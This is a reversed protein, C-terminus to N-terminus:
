ILDREQKGIGEEQAIFSADNTLPTTLAIATMDEDTLKVIALKEARDDYSEKKKMSIHMDMSKGGDKAIVNTKLRKRLQPPLLNLDMESYMRKKAMTQKGFLILQDKTRDHKLGGTHQSLMQKHGTFESSGKRNNGMAKRAKRDEYCNSTYRSQSDTFKITDQSQIASRLIGHLQELMRSNSPMLKFVASLAEFLVPFKSQMHHLPKNMPQHSTSDPIKQIDQMKSLKRLDDFLCERHLGMFRFYAIALNENERLKNLWTVEATTVMGPDRGNRIEFEEKTIINADFIVKNVARTFDPARRRDFLILYILPVSFWAKLMKLIEKYGANIGALIQKTRLTKEVPDDKWTDEIYDFTNKFTTRPDKKARTWWPQVFDYLFIHLERMRFGPTPSMEGACSYWRMTTEFYCGLYTEFTLGLIVSPMRLMLAVEHAIRQHDSSHTTNRVRLAWEKLPVINVLQYAANRENTLWRQQRERMTKMRAPELGLDRLVEEFIKQYTVSGRKFLDHMSQLCQLPHFQRHNGREMPGFAENMCHSMALNDIHYLDRCEMLLRKVDNYVLRGTLLDPETAHQYNDDDLWSMVKEFTLKRESAATNENDTVHGGFHAAIDLPISTKMTDLNLNSLGDADKAMPESTTLVKFRPNEDVKSYSMILGHRDRNHHKSGDSVIYFYRIFGHKTPTTIYPRFAEMDRHFDIMDLRYINRIITQTSILEEKELPRGCLYTSFMQLMSPFRTKKVKYEFMIDRLISASGLKLVMKHNDRNMEFNDMPKFCVCPMSGDANFTKAVFLWDLLLQDAQPKFVQSMLFNSRAHSIGRRLQGLQRPGLSRIMVETIGPQLHIDHRTPETNVDDLSRLGVIFELSALIEISIEKLSQANLKLNKLSPPSGADLNAVSLVDPSMSQRQTHIRTRTLIEPHNNDLVRGSSRTRQEGLIVCAWLCNRIEKEYVATIGLCSEHVLPYNWIGRFKPHLIIDNLDNERFSASDENRFDRFWAKWTRQRRQMDEDCNFLRSTEDGITFRM